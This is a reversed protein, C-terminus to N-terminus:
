GILALFPPLCADTIAEYLSSPREERRAHRRREVDFPAVPFATSPIADGKPAVPPGLCAM